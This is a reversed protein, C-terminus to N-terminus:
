ALVLKILNGKSFIEGKKISQEKIAGNGSFSVKLGHNELLYIADKLGMGTLEPMVGNQLDNVIKRVELLIKDESETAIMWDSSGSENPINFYSLVKEADLRNGHKIKPLSPSAESSENVGRTIAIHSHEDIIGM